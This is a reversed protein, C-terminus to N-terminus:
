PHILLRRLADVKQEEEGGGCRREDAMPFASVQVNGGQFGGDGGATIM